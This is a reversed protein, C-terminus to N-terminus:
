LAIILFEVRRNLQRGEPTDNTAIPYRFSYGEFELRDKNIGKSILYNVVSNARNRSLNSNYAHDGQNDTHGSIEIRMTPNQNLIRVLRDLEASSEPRLDFKDTDFFVNRLIVKAGARLRNLDVDKTFEQYGTALPIDFHESHFLYGQASVAIGYNRGSPLPLLYKGTLSNSYFTSVLEGTSNDVLEITAELPERTLSDRITGKLITLFPNSTPIKEEVVMEAVPRDISALLNDENSLIPQAEPGLFTVRYIDQYGLGGAMSSSFYGYRGNATMVFFIDDDPTNIPFGLNEPASWKGDPGLQSRFIDFGGMGRHGESSFYLTKGDPHMFASEEELPTNITPGLNQVNGWEGKEDLTAMYIDHLGLSLKPEDSIFYMTRGDPSFCASPEHDKSNVARSLARPKSWQNGKLESVFLDGNDTAGDYSFFSNGDASLGVTADHNRTNVPDGINRAPSWQGDPQRYCIYIDEFHFNDVADIEGGTSGPRRSTFMLVTEDASILPSYDPYPSNVRDGVNDIFVRLPRATLELAVQCERRRREIEPGSFNLEAPSLSAKFTDFAGIAKQFQSNAHLAVGYHFYLDKTVLEGDLAISKELFDVAMDRHTQDFIYCIGIKYNLIANEPNYENAFLYKPLAEKYYSPGLEFFRDAEAINDWAERFGDKDDVKFEGRDIPVNEQARLGALPALFAVLCALALFLERKHNDM